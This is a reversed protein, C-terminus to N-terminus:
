KARKIKSMDYYDKISDAVALNAKPLTAGEIEIKKGRLRKSAVLASLVLLKEVKESVAFNYDRMKEASAVEDKSPPTLKRIYDWAAVEASIRGKVAGSEIGITCAGIVKGRPCAAVVKM